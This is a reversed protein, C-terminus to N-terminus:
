HKGVVVEIVGEPGSFNELAKGIVSGVKPNTEARAFGDGASIMMDGKAVTGKVKCPVRGQLALCSKYQGKTPDVELGDNMFFAPQTSVIGAVRTTAEAAQTVEQDGGFALVTGSAYPQDSIYYEALDAYLATTSRAHVTNFGQGATGINGVGNTGGNGIAIDNNDSNLYISDRIGVGGGVILAGTFSSTSSVSSTVNANGMWLDAYRYSVNAKDVLTSPPNTLNTFLKYAGDSQARFLGTYRQTGDNYTGVFGQDIADGVNTNAVFLFPTNITLSNTATSTFSGSVTLAGAVTVTGGVYLAGSVGAGGTVVLAGSATSTSALGSTARITNAFLDGSVGAGGTVRLAGSTTSTSLGGNIDSILVRTNGSVSLGLSTTTPWYIGTTSAGVGYISPSVTTGLPYANATIFVTSLSGANFTVSLNNTGLVPAKGTNFILSTSSATYDVGPIQLTSGVAVTIDSAKSVAQQLAFQLTTGDGNFLQTATSLTQNVPRIGIYAM